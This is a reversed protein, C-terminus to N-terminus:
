ITWENHIVGIVYLNNEYEEIVLQISRWDLGEYDKDFGPFYYELIDSDPYFEAANSLANGFHLQKNLSIEPAERYNQDYIYRDFYNKFTMLLPEGSGDAYGWMYEADSLFINRLTDSSLTVDKDTVYSYPTFRIGKTPHAMSYLEKSNQEHLAKLFRDSFGKLQIYRAQKSIYEGAEQINEGITNIKSTQDRENDIVRYENRLVVRSQPDIHESQYQRGSGYELWYTLLAAVAFALVLLFLFYGLYNRFKIDINWMM